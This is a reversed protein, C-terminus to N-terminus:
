ADRDAFQRRYENDLLSAVFRSQDHETAAQELEPPLEPANSPRLVLRPDAKLAEVDVGTNGGIFHGLRIAQLTEPPLPITLLGSLARMHRAPETVFREWNLVVRDGTPRIAKMHGLYNYAWRHLNASVWDKDLSAVPEGRRVHQKLLSRLYQIPSKYLIIYDFRFLPDLSWYLHLNKDATVLNRVGLRDAIKAYWGSEDAALATRFGTDFCQCDRLCVRCPVPWRSAPASTGRITEMAGSATRM